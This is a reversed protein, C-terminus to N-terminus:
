KLVLYGRRVMRAEPETHGSSEPHKETSSLNLIEEPPVAPAVDIDVHEAALITVFIFSFDIM